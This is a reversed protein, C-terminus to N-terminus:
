FFLFSFYLILIPVALHERGPLTHPAQFAGQPHCPPYPPVSNGAPTPVTALPKGPSALSPATTKLAPPKPELGGEPSSAVQRPLSRVRERGRAPQHRPEQVPQLHGQRLWHDTPLSPFLDTSPKPPAPAKLPPQLRRPLEPLPPITGPHSPLACFSSPLGCSSSLGGLRGTQM